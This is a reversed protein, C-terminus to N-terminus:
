RKLEAGAVIGLVFGAVGVVTRSPKPIFGFFKNPNPAPKPLTRLIYQLSDARTSSVAVARQLLVTQSNKQTIISQQDIIVSDALVIQGKLNGIISDKYVVVLSTDTTLNTLLNARTELETLDTKLLKQQTTRQVINGNLKKVIDDKKISEEQLKEVVVKLSDAYNSVKESNNKFEAYKVNFQEQKSNGDSKGLMFSIIFIVGGIIALRSVSTLTNFEKGFNILSTLLKNM